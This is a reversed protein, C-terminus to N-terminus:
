PSSFDFDADITGFELAGDLDVVDLDFASMTPLVVGAGPLVDWDLDLATLDLGEPLAVETAADLSKTPAVGPTSGPYLKRLREADRTRLKLPPGPTVSGDAEIIWPQSSLGVSNSISSLDNVHDVGLAHLFEHTVLSQRERASLQSPPAYLYVGASNCAAGPAVQVWCGAEGAVGGSAVNGGSTEEILDVQALEPNATRRVRIGLGAVSNVERLAADVAEQYEPSLDDAYVLIEASATPVLRHLPVEAPVPPPPGMPGQAQALLDGSTIGLGPLMDDGVPGAAVLVGTAGPGALVGPAAAEGSTTDPAAGPAAFDGFSDLLAVGDAEPLDARLEPLAAVASMFDVPALELAALAPIDALAALAEGDASAGQVPAGTPVPVADGAGAVPVPMPPVSGAATPSGPAAPSVVALSPEIASGPVPLGGVLAAVGGADDWRDPQTMAAAPAAALGGEATTPQPTACATARLSCRLADVVGDAVPGAAAGVSLVAVTLAVAVGLLSVTTASGREGGTEIRM